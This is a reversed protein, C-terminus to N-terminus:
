QRIDRYYPASVVMRFRGEGLNGMSRLSPIQFTIFGGADDNIQKRSFISAITDAYERPTATDTEALTLIDVQVLGTYRILPSTGGIEAQKGDGNVIRLYLFAGKPQKQASNEFLVPVSTSVPLKKWAQLFHGEIARREASFSM